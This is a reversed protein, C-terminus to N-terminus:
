NRRKGTVNEWDSDSQDDERQKRKGNPASITTSSEGMSLLKNIDSEDANVTAAKTENKTLKELHAKASELNKAFNQLSSFDHVESSSKKNIQDVISPKNTSEVKTESEVPCFEDDDSESSDSLRVGANCDFVPAESPTQKPQNCKVDFFESNLDLQSPKVLGEDESSESDSQATSTAGAANASSM